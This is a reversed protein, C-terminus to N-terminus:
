PLSDIMGIRNTSLPAGLMARCTSSPQSKLGHLARREALLSRKDVFRIPLSDILLNTVPMGVVSTLSPGPRRVKWDATRSASPCSHGGERRQIRAGGQRFSEVALSAMFRCGPVFISNM